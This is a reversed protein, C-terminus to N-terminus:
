LVQRNTFGAFPRGLGTTAATPVAYSPLPHVTGTTLVREGSLKSYTSGVAHCHYVADTVGNVSMAWYLTTDPGTPYITFAGSALSISLEIGIAGWANSNTNTATLTATPTPRWTLLQSQNPTLLGVSGGPYQGAAGTWLTNISGGVYMLVANRSNSAASLTVSASTGTGTSTVSQVVGYASAVNVNTYEVVQWLVGTQVSGFSLTIAGTYDTTPTAAFVSIRNLSSNFQLTAVQSWSVSGSTITPLAASTGHSNEVFVLYLKSAKLAVSLTDWSAADNSNGSATLVTTAIAWSSVTQLSATGGSTLTPGTTYIADMRGTSPDSLRYLGVDFTNTGTTAGGNTWFMQAVSYSEPCDVPFFGAQSVIWSQASVGSSQTPFRFRHAPTWVPPIPMLSPSQSFIM